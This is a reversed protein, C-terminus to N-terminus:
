KFQQEKKMQNELEKSFKKKEYEEVMEDKKIEMGAKIGQADDKIDEVTDKMVFEAKKMGKQLDDKLSEMEKKILSM